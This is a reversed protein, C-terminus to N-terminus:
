GTPRHNRASRRRRVANEWKIAVPMVLFISVIMTMLAVVLVLLYALVAASLADTLRWQEETHGRPPYHVALSAALFAIVWVAAVRRCWKNAASDRDYRGAREARKASTLWWAILGVSSVGLVVGVITAAGMPWGFTSVAVVLRGVDGYAMLGPLVLLFLGCFMPHRDM